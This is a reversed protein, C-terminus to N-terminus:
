NRRIVRRLPQNAARMSDFKARQADTLIARIEADTSDVGAQVAPTFEDIVRVVRDRGRVLIPGLQSRQADSLGLETLETPIANTATFTIRPQRARPLMLAGVAVGLGFAVVALLAGLLRGKQLTSNM